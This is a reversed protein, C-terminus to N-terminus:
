RTLACQAAHKLTKALGIRLIPVREMTWIRLIENLHAEREATTEGCIHLGTAEALLDRKQGDAAFRALTRRLGQWDSTRIVKLQHAVALLAERRTEEPSAVSAFAVLENAVHDQLLMGQAIRSIALWEPVDSQSILMDGRWSERPPAIARASNTRAMVSSLYDHVFGDPLSAALYAIGNVYSDFTGFKERNQQAWREVVARDQESLHQANRALIEFATLQKFEHEEMPASLTDLLFGRTDKPFPMLPAIATLWEAFEPPGDLGREDTRLFRSVRDVTREELYRHRAVIALLSLAMAAGSNLVDGTEAKDYTELQALLIGEANSAAKDDDTLAVVFVESLACWSNPHKIESIVSRFRPSRAWDALRAFERVGDYKLNRIGSARERADAVHRYAVIKLLKGFSKNRDDTDVTVLFHWDLEKLFRTTSPNSLTFDIKNVINEWCGLDINPLDYAFAKKVSDVDMTQDLTKLTLFEEIRPGHVASNYGDAGDDLRAHLFISLKQRAETKLLPGLKTPWATSYRLRNALLSGNVLKSFAGTNADPNQDLDSRDFGTDIIGGPLMRRLPDFIRLGSRAVIDGESDIMLHQYSLDTIVIFAILFVAARTLWRRFTTALAQYTSIQDGLEAVSATPMRVRSTSMGGRVPEQRAQNKQAFARKSVDECVFIFLDDVDVYGDVSSLPSTDALGRIVANSFLGHQITSDEWARQESRASCLFLRARSGDLVRFFRTGAVVAEAHCCDLFLVSTGAGISEFARDIEESTLVGDNGHADALCFVANDQETRFAHGALYVIFLDLKFAALREISSSWESSTASHDTWCEITLLTATSWAARVYREFSLVDESAYLLKNAGTNLNIDSYESIGFIAAGVRM